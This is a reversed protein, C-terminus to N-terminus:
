FCQLLALKGRVIPLLVMPICLIRIVLDGNTRQNLQIVTINTERKTKLSNGTSRLLLFYEIAPRM